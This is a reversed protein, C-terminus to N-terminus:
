LPNSGNVVCSFPRKGTPAILNGEVGLFLADAGADVALTFRDFRANRGSVEVLAFGAAILERWGYTRQEIIRV